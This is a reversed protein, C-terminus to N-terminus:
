NPASHAMHSATTVVESPAARSTKWSRSTKLARRSGESSNAIGVPEFVTWGFAHKKVNLDSNHRRGLSVNVWVGDTGVSHGHDFGLGWGNM